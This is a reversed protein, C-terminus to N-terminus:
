DAEEENNKERQVGTREKVLDDIDCDLYSLYDCVASGEDEEQDQNEYYDTIKEKVREAFEKIAEAIVESYMKGIDAFREIEARQRNILELAEAILSGMCEEAELFPEYYYHCKTCKGGVCCELANVVENDTM